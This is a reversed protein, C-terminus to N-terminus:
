RNIRRKLKPKIKLKKKGGTPAKKAPATKKKPANRPQHEGTADPGDTKALREAQGSPDLEYVTGWEPDRRRNFRVGQDELARLVVGMSRPSLTGGAAEIVEEWSHEGRKLMLAAAGYYNPNEKKDFPNTLDAKVAKARKKPVAKTPV